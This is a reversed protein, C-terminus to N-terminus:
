VFTYPRHSIFFATHIRSEITRATDNKAIDDSLVKKCEERNSIDFQLVRANRGLSIIEDKLENAMKTNKNCHLVLDFGNKALYLASARGIGRSSGTVLVQKEM